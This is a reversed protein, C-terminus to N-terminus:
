SRADRLLLAERIAREKEKAARREDALLMRAELVRVPPDVPVIARHVTVIRPPAGDRMGFDIYLTDIRAPWPQMEGGEHRVLLHPEHGPLAFRVLTNGAHDSRTGPMAQPCLNYLAIVEDGELWPIQQDGPASNWYEFAFDSPLYPHREAIWRDDYTGAFNRRPRWGKAIPGLGLVPYPVGLESLPQDPLEIQPARIHDPKVAELWWKEVFGSGVPNESCYDWGVPEPRGGAALRARAEDLPVMRTTRPVRDAAPDDSDVRCEGGYAHEYRLLVREVEEPASLSWGTWGGRWERPGTVSLSKSLL